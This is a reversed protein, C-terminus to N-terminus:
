KAKGTARRERMVRRQKENYSETGLLQDENWAAYHFTEVASRVADCPDMNEVEVKIQALNEVAEIRRLQKMSWHSRLAADDRLDFKEKWYRAPHGTLLRNILDSPNSFAYFPVREIGEHNIRYQHDIAETFTKRVVKGELRANLAEQRSKSDSVIGFADCFLEQLGM